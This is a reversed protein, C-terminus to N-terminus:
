ATAEAAAEEVSRGALLQYVEQYRAATEAVIEDPLSPAEPGELEEKPLTKLYDRVLQKDWPTPQRGAKHESAKFFRSSDPTLVEDILVLSGDALRGFEFKTDCLILGREACHTSAANFIKLSVERLRNALEAGQDAELEAFTLPLDHGQAAKTTPTFIPEPLQGGLPIGSPLSIGQIAGDREYHEQVSGALYGRVICEVPVVPLKRVLVARGGLERAAKAEAAPMEAARWSVIHNAVTDELTEFWFNATQTLVTGKGPIASALVRDFASIRDTAVFLLKDKGAAYVDRVKGQHLLEFDSLSTTRVATTSM